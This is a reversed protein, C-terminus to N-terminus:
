TCHRSFPMADAVNLLDAVAATRHRRQGEVTSNGDKAHLHLFHYTKTHARSIIEAIKTPDM